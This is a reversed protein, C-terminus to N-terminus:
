RVHLHFFDLVQPWHPYTKIVFGAIEMTTKAAVLKTNIRTWVSDRATASPNAEALERAKDLDRIVDDKDDFSEGGVAEILALIENLIKSVPEHNVISINQVNSPGQLVGGELRGIHMEYSVGSAEGQHRAEVAREGTSTIQVRDGDLYFLDAPM